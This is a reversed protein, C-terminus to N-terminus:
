GNNTGPDFRWDRLPTFQTTDLEFAVGFPADVVSGTALHGNSVNLTAFGGTEHRRFLDGHHALVQEQVAPSHMSLGKFYHHGNREVSQIGLAACVALDQQLSVPGVNSLDEGSLLYTAHPDTRRRSELLCANAIGKAIGKCNKHSTGVYGCDLARILAGPEGDSEDIIIPPRTPWAALESKVQDSLAVDRHLPQEVFILRPLHPKVSPDAALREWLQRFAGIQKYNENGDVTFAWNGSVHRAIITFIQRLRDLDKEVDGAIKLKFHRLGYYRICAEFSQPLGDDVRDAPPIQDDTLYDVLGVTHRATIQRLPQKPLWQAPQTDGLEAYDLMLRQDAFGSFRIGLLNERVATAFTTRTAKCFAEIAAREVLSVGFNYLLPPFAKERGWISQEFYVRSVLSYLDPQSGALAAHDAAHRILEIMDRLDDEFPTQPNKTFWKPPLHDAAVGTFTKGDVDLTLKLFLHPCARLTVIGYRFPLRTRMNFLRLDIAKVQLMGAVTAAHTPLCFAVPVLCFHFVCARITRKREAANPYEQGSMHSISGSAIHPNAHIAQDAYQNM